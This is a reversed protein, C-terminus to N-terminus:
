TYTSQRFAPQEMNIAFYSLSTTGTSLRCVLSLIGNSNAGSMSTHRNSSAEACDADVRMPYWKWLIENLSWQSRCNFFLITVHQQVCCNLYKSAPLANNEDHFTPIDMLQNLHSANNQRFASQWCRM